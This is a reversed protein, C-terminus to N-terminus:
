AELSVEQEASTLEVRIGNAFCHGVGRLWARGRGTATFTAHHGTLRAQFRNGSVNIEGEWGRLYTWNGRDIRQGSGSALVQDANRIRANGPHDASIFLNGAMDLRVTGTGECILTGQGARDPEPTDQAAAAGATLAILSLGIGMLKM